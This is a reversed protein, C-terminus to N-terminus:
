YINLLMQAGTAVASFMSSMVGNHDMSNAAVIKKLTNLMKM